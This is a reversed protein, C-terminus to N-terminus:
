RQSKRIYNLEVWSQLEIYNSKELARVRSELSVFDNETQEAIAKLRAIEKSSDEQGTKIKDVTTFVFMLIAISATLLMTNIYNLFTTRSESDRLATM